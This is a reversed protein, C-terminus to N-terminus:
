TGYDRVLQYDLEQYEGGEARYYVHYSKADEILDWTVYASEFWGGTEKINIGAFSSTATMLLLLFSLWKIKM